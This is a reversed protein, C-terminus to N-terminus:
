DAEVMAAAVRDKVSGGPNFFEIKALVKAGGKNLKSSIEVLPTRGMTELINETMCNM